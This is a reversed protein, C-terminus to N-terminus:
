DATVSSEGAPKVADNRYLANAFFHEHGALTLTPAPLALSRAATRNTVTCESGRIQQTHRLIEEQFTSTTEKGAKGHISRATNPSM